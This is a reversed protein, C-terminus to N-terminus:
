NLYGVERVVQVERMIDELCLSRTAKYSKNLRNNYSIVKNNHPNNMLGM